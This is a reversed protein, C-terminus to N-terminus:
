TTELSIEGDAELKRVIDIISDQCSEIERLSTKGLNSIEDAVTEAARKSLSGLMVKRLSETAASLAVALKSADVERMVKQLAKVELTQLDDFTFMKMRIARVLDPTREDMKNIINQRQTKDMANLVAAASKVGGTQNLARTLKQGIKKSLVEGVTEVVEIPTSSLTALREIVQERVAEPLLMLVESGKQASLYSVVLAITQPQEEKLLNCIGNADLDILPQMAAVSTRKTGVRGIIEAAKFLGVSKELVNRTYDVSGVLASNAQLAMETFEQLVTTQQELNLMPLNSMEASVLERENDDFAKLLISATDEGLLIMLAALKQTATLGFPKPKVEERPNNDPPM